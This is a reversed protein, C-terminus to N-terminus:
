THNKYVCVCVNAERTFKTFGIRIYLPPFSKKELTKRGKRTKDGAHNGHLGVFM